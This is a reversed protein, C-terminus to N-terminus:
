LSDYVITFMSVDLTATMFSFPDILLTSTKIKSRQLKGIEKWELCVDEVSNLDFLDLHMFVKIMIDPEFYLLDM